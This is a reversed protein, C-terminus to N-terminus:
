EATKEEKRKKSDHGNEEGNDEHKRKMSGAESVSWQQGFRDVVRGYVSGWFQRAVPMTIKGGGAALKEALAAGEGEGIFLSITIDPHKRTSFEPFIDCIYVLGSNLSFVSHMVKEDQKHTPGASTAGFVKEIWEIEAAANNVQIEPVVNNIESKALSFTPRGPTITTLAWFIGQPDKIIGYESGWFQKEVKVMSTAGNALATEETAKADPVLVYLVVRAKEEETHQLHESTLFGLNADEHFFHSGNLIRAMHIVKEPHKEDRYDFINKASEGFAEVIFEDFKIGESTVVDIVVGIQSRSKKEELSLAAAGDEQPTDKEDAM